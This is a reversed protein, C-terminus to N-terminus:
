ISLLINFKQKKDKKKINVDLEKNRSSNYKQELTKFKIIFYMPNDCFANNLFENAKIIVNPHEKVIIFHQKKSRYIATDLHTINYEKNPELIDEAKIATSPKFTNLKQLTINVIELNIHGIRENLEERLDTINIRTDLSVITKFKPIKNNSKDHEYKEIQVTLISKFNIFGFVGNNYDKWLTKYKTYIFKLYAGAYYLKNDEERLVMLASNDHKTKRISFARM